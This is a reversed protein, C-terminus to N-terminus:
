NELLHNAGIPCENFFDTVVGRDALKINVIGDQYAVYKRIRKKIKELFPKVIEGIKNGMKRLKHHSTKAIEVEEPELGANRANRNHHNRGMGWWMHYFLGEWYEQSNEYNCADIASADAKKYLWLYRRKLENLSANILTKYFIKMNEKDYIDVPRADPVDYDVRWGWDTVARNYNKFGLKKLNDLHEGLPNDVDDPSTFKCGNAREMIGFWGADTNNHLLLRLIYMGLGAINHSTWSYERNNLARGGLLYERPMVPRATDTETKVRKVINTGKKRFKALGSNTSGMYTFIDGERRDRWNLYQYDRGIKFKKPLQPPVACDCIAFDMILRWIHEPFHIGKGKGVFRCNGLMYGDRKVQAQFIANSHDMAADARMNMYKVLDDFGSLDKKMQYYNERSREGMDELMKNPYYLKETFKDEPVNDGYRDRGGKKQNKENYLNGEALYEKHKALAQESKM